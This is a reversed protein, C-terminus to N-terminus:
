KKNLTVKLMISDKGTITIRQGTTIEDESEAPWQSGKFEIKGPEGPRINTLAVATKGIFEDELTSVNRDGELFFKKKLSRRLLVLILVSSLLFVLFQINLNPHFLACVIATIWAGIGFFLVILGPIVIELLLLFLGILFWIVPPKSILELFGM